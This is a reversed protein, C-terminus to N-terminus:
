EAIECAHGETTIEWKIIGLNSSLICNLYVSVLTVNKGSKGIPVQNKNLVKIACDTSM